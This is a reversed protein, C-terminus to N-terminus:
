SNGSCVVLVALKSLRFAFNFVVNSQFIGRQQHLFPLVLLLRTPLVRLSLLTGGTATSYMCESPFSSDSIALPGMRDLSFHLDVCSKAVSCVVIGSRRSFNCLHLDLGFAAGGLLM